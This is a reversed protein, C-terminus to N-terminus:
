LQPMHTRFKDRPDQGVVLLCEPDFKRLFVQLSKLSLPDRKELSYDCTVFTGDVGEVWLGFDPISLPYSLTVSAWPFCEMCACPLACHDRCEKVAISHNM